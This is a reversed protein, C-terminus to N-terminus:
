LKCHRSLDEFYVQKLKNTGNWDVWLAPEGDKGHKMAVLKKVTWGKWITTGGVAEM